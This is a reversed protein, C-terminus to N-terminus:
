YEELVITTNTRTYTPLYTDKGRFSIKSVKDGKHSIKM